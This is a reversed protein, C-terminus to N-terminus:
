TACADARRLVRAWAQAPRLATAIESPVGGRLARGLTWLHYALAGALGNSAGAVWFAGRLGEDLRSVVGWTQVYRLLLTDHRRRAEPEWLGLSLLWSSVDELPSGLRARAWDVLLAEDGHGGEVLMANGSHVDGHLAARGFPAHALLEGRLRPLRLVLRRASPLTRLLDYPLFRRPIEELAGLTARGRELLVPEYAWDGVAALVDDDHCQHLHALADLTQGAATANAWPWRTRPRVEEFYMMVGTGEFQHSGLLLPGLRRPLAPLCRQHVQVERAHAAPAGKVVFRLARRARRTHLTARVLLVFSSELGGALRQLVLNTVHGGDGMRAAFHRISRRIDARIARRLGARPAPTM